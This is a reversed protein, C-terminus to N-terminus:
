ACKTCLVTKSKHRDFAPQQQQQAQKNEECWFYWRSTYAYADEGNSTGRSLIPLLESIIRKFRVHSLKNVDSSSRACLEFYKRRTTIRMTNRNVWLECWILRQEKCEYSSILLVNFSMTDISFINQQALLSIRRLSVGEVLYCWSHRTRQSGYASYASRTAPRNTASRQHHYKTTKAVSLCLLAKLFLLSDSYGTKITSSPTGMPSYFFERSAGNKARQSFCLSVLHHVRVCTSFHWCFSSCRSYLILLVNNFHCGFRFANLKSPTTQAPSPSVRLRHIFSIMSSCRDSPVPEFHSSCFTIANRTHGPQASDGTYARFHVIANWVQVM